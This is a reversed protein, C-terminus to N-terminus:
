GWSVQEKLCCQEKLPAHKAGLEVMEARVDIADAISRNLLALLYKTHDAINRVAAGSTSLMCANGFAAAASPCQSEVKQYCRRVVTTLAKTNIHKWSRRVALAQSASMISLM